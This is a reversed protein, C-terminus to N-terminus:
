VREAIERDRAGALGAAMQLGTQEREGLASWYARLPALRNMSTM